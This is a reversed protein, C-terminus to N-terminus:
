LAHRGTEALLAALMDDRSDLWIIKIGHREM